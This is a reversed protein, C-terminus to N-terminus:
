FVHILFLVLVVFSQKRQYHKDKKFKGSSKTAFRRKKKIHKHGTGPASAVTNLRSKELLGTLVNKPKTCEALRVPLLLPQPM